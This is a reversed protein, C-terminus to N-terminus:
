ADRAAPLARFRASQTGFERLLGDVLATIQPRLAPLDPGHIRTAAVLAASESLGGLAVSALADHKARPASSFFHPRCDRDLQVTGQVLRDVGMDFIVHDIVRVAREAVHRRSHMGHPAFLRTFIGM